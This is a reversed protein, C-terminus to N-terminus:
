IRGGKRGEQEDIERPPGVLTLPRREFFGADGACAIGLQERWEPLTSARALTLGVRGRAKDWCVTDVRFFKPARREVSREDQKRRALRAGHQGEHVIAARLIGDRCDVFWGDVFREGHVARGSLVISELKAPRERTKAFLPFEARPAPFRGIAKRARVQVARAVEDGTDAARAVDIALDVATLLLWPALDRRGRVADTIAERGDDTALYLICHFLDTTRGPLERFSIARAIGLPDTEDFGDLGDHTRRLLRVRAPSLSLAIDPPLLCLRTSM